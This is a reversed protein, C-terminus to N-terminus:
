EYLLDIVHGAIALSSTLGPSEIGFLNVLGKVGHVNSGQIIFDGALEHQATIKPRVGSYAVALKAEDVNPWYAGIAKAFAISKEPDVAYDFTKGYLAKKEMEGGDLWEVDPGFKAAGAMDLTLHIGLGGPEPIPYVLHSFPTKATYSFYSGKAYSAVPLCTQPFGDIGSFLKIANLGAANVCVKATVKAGQGLLDFTIGNQQIGSVALTTNLVLQGSANQYDALLQQMYAHSDLIGTAPSLLAAAVDLSPELAQVETKDLFKLDDVGNALAHQEIRKLEIIQSQDKAVILKGCRKFPVEKAECYQYLLQRGQVCLKAKLSGQPYYIGAHIVESNRSSTQMGVQSEQEILWVERGQMALARAVALGIVGAGLVLCEVEFQEM